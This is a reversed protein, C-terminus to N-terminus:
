SFLITPVLGIPPGIPVTCFAMVLPTRRNDHSFICVLRSCPRHKLQSSFNVGPCRQLDFCAYKISGTSLSPSSVSSPRVPSAFDWNMSNRSHMARSRHPKRCPYFLSPYYYINTSLPDDCLKMLWFRAVLSMRVICCTSGKLTFTAFSLAMGHWVIYWTTGMLIWPIM